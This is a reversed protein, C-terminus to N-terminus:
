YHKYKYYIHKVSYNYIFIKILKIFHGFKMKVIIILSCVKSCKNEIISGYVTVDEITTNYISYDCSIGKVRILPGNSMSNRFNIGNIYLKNKNEGSEFLILSDGSDGICTINEFNANNFTIDHYM